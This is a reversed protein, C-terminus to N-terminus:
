SSALIKAFILSVSKCTMYFLVFRSAIYTEGWNLVRPNLVNFFFIPIINLDSSPKLSIWNIHTPYDCTKETLFQNIQHITSGTNFRQMFLRLLYCVMNCVGHGSGSSCNNPCTKMNCDPGFWGDKCVCSEGSSMVVCYRNGHCSDACRNVKFIAGFGASASGQTINGHFVVVMNGTVSTTYKPITEMTGCFSGLKYFSPPHPTQINLLFYPLGDYVDLHETSCSLNMSIFQLTISTSSSQPPNKNYIINHSSNTSASIVWLCSAQSRDVM